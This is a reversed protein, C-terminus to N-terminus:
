DHLSLGEPDGGGGDRESGNRGDRCKDGTGVKGDSDPVWPLVRFSSIVRSSPPSLPSDLPPVPPTNNLTGPSLSEPVQTVGTAERKPFTTLDKSQVPRDCRVGGTELSFGTMGM